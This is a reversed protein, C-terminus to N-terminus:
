SSKFNFIFSIRRSKVYNENSYKIKHDKYTNVMNMCSVWQKFTSALFIDKWDCSVILWATIEKYLEPYIYQYKNLFKNLKYTKTYLKDIINNEYEVNIINSKIDIDINLIKYDPFVKTYLIDNVLKTIIQVYVYSIHQGNIKLINIDRLIDQYNITIEAICIRKSDKFCDPYTVENHRFFHYLLQKHNNFNEWNRKFKNFRYITSNLPNRLYKTLDCDSFHFFRDNYKFLDQNLIDYIKKIEEQSQLSFIDIDNLM